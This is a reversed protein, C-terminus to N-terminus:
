SVKEARQVLGTVIWRKEKSIPSTERILVKDGTHYQGETDHAKYRKSVKYYKKYISHKRLSRVEVVVTKTMKDSVVIGSLLRGKTPISQKQENAM